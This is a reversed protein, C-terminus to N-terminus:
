VNYRCARERGKQGGRQRLSGFGGIQGPAADLDAAQGRQGAFAGLPALSRLEGHLNRNLFDVGLATDPGHKLESNSVMAGCSSVRNFVTM